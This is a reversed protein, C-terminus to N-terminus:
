WVEAFFTPQEVPAAMARGFAMIAAVAGDIKYEYRDKRPFVNDKADTHCVVNSMCWTLVPNGDHFLKGAEVLAELQKMPESMNRVTSGYEVMTLGADSLHTVLQAAQFPDYPCETFQFHKARELIREEIADYDVMAGPTITLHGAEAWGRYIDANHASELAGEPLFFDAFLHYTEGRRFLYAVANLDLKSALDIGVWCPEGAFATMPLSADRQREWSTMNMWASKANCWVNLHKTKFANQKSPNQLAKQLQSRLFDGRVSVDYNPNAKRLAEDSKWDDGDDITYILGFIEEDRQVGELVKQVRLRMDYCPGGLNFGATTIAVMLPQSRAGMGTIMTDYLRPSDHEHYEDVIACHPSAGDGPDGILPEFKALKGPINMNKARVDVGYFDVFGEASKAMAQAPGYVEWAQKETTAGSYVEAGQEGDAAFMYLGLPAVLSSKGNKRPIETYSERFRRLGDGDRLWGFLTTVIFCQWPELRMTERKRAWEGKVHPMMESFRCVREAADRDFYYPSGEVGDWRALDDIQRQCALRVWKCAPIGGAVVDRAYQLGADVHPHKSAKAMSM